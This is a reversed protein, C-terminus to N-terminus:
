VAPVAELPFSLIIETGHGEETDISLSGGHMEVLSKTLALGLGTGTQHRTYNNEVQEFPHLLRPLDKAAIGIGTDRVSLILQDGDHACRTTIKGGDPTFKVANTLLNLLCQKVSRRDAQLMPMGTPINTRLEITKGEAHGRVLQLCEEIMGDLAIPEISMSRKGAEVKAVDLVDNILQLLHQGSAHIDGSYEAYKPTGIPGFMQHMIIEAFGIIANLPTRLEHSMNAMFASKAQNAREAAQQSEVLEQQALRLITVDTGTGRYGMFTQDRGFVPVGGLRFHASRGTPGTVACEFDRFPRHHCLDELHEALLDASSDALVATRPQGIIAAPDIGTTERFRESLWTFHLNGDMEWFWDSSSRAFDEFREGSQRLASEMRQRESAYRVARMIAPGDVNGKILYDQGGERLMAGATEDDDLGTLIIIPLEPAANRIGSVAKAGFSDPLSLDLLCVDFSLTELKAVAAALTTVWDVRIRERMPVSRIESDVLRADGANDEVLLINM